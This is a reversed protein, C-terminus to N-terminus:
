PTTPWSRGHFGSRRPRGFCHMTSRVRKM